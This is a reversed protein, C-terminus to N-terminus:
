LQFTKRSVLDVSQKFDTYPTSQQSAPDDNNFKKITKTYVKTLSLVTIEEDIDTKDHADTDLWSLGNPTIHTIGRSYVVGFDFQQIRLKWRAFRRSPTNLNLIWRLSDHGTRIEFITKYLYTRPPAWGM